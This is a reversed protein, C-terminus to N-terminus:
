PPARELLGTYTKDLILGGANGGSKVGGHEKGDAGVRGGQGANQLRAVVTNTAKGLHHPAEVEENEDHAQDHAVAVHQVVDAGHVSDVRHEHVCAEADRRLSAVSLPSAPPPQVPTDLLSPPHEKVLLQGLLTTGSFPYTLNHPRNSLYPQTASQILLTTGSFPHHPQAASHILLTTGSFPYTLNHRQISRRPQASHTLPHVAPVSIFSRKFLLCLFYHTEVAPLNM